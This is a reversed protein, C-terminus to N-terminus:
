DLPVIGRRRMEARLDTKVLGVLSSNALDFLAEADKWHASRVRLQPYDRIHKGPHALNRLERIFHLWEAPRTRSYKNKRSPLWQLAAALRLLHYLSWDQARKPPRRTAPLAAVYTEVDDSQITAMALLLGELAGGLMVCAAHYARAKAARQAERHFREVLPMLANFQRGTLPRFYRRAPIAPSSSVGSAM